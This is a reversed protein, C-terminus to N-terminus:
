KESLAGFYREVLARYEPSVDVEGSEILRRVEDASLTVAEATVEEVLAPGGDGEHIRERHPEAGAGPGAEGGEERTLVGVTRGRTERRDFPSSGARRAEGGVSALRTLLEPDVEGRRVGESIENLWRV